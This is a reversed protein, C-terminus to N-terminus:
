FSKKGENINFHWNLYCCVITVASCKVNEKLWNVRFPRLPTKSIYVTLAIVRLCHCDCWWVNRELTCLLTRSTPTSPWYCLPTTASRCFMSQFTPQVRRRFVELHRLAGCAGLISTTGNWRSEHLNWDAVIRNNSTIVPFASLDEYLQFTNKNKCQNWFLHEILHLRRM